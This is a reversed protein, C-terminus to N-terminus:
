KSTVWQRSKAALWFFRSMEKGGRRVGRNKQMRDKVIGERTIGFDPRDSSLEGPFEELDPGATGSIKPNVKVSPM